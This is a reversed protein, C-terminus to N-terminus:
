AVHQWTKRHVAYGVLTPTVGLDKAISVLTRGSAAEARLWRVKDEDLKANAMNAKRTQEPTFTHGRRKTRMDALNETQTGISLHDPRVCAPVDCSHLLSEAEALPGNTLEWAVRHARRLRTDDDYFYGYGGRKLNVVGRWLWCGDTKEVKGWFREPRPLQM